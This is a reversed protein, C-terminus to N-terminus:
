RETTPVDAPQTAIRAFEAPTNINRLSRNLDNSENNIPVNTCSLASCLVRPGVTAPLSKLERCIASRRYLAHLPERVGDRVPVVAETGQERRQILQELARSSLLPMDGACVVIWPTTIKSIAGAIGALPGEYDPHDFCFQVDVSGSLCDSIADCQDKTRVAVVPDHESIVQLTAVVHGILPRKKYPELLKNKDGYRISEGGALAVGVLSVDETIM